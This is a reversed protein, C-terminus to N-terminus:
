GRVNLETWVAVGEEPPPSGESLIFLLARLDGLGSKTLKAIKQEFKGEESENRKNPFPSSSSFLLPSFPASVWDQHAPIAKGRCRQQSGKKARACERFLPGARM